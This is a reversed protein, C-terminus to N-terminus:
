ASDILVVTVDCVNTGTAGTVVHARAGTARDLEAFFAYANNDDLMTCADLDARTARAITEGDVIAGAAPSLGLPHSGDVGDTALTMITVRAGVGARDLEIAAALALEQNRGGFGSGRVRVHTEGGLVIARRKAFNQRRSPDALTPNAKAWSAAHRALEEGVKRAEGVVGLEVRDITYGAAECARRAAEVATANSGVLRTRVRALRADNPKPTEPIEGRAGRELHAMVRPCDFWVGLREIVEIAQAYTTPDPSCPGSGITEIVDGVVDSLALVHIPMDGACLALQGGKLADIHRRVCNLENISAGARMLTRVCAAYEDLTLEGAPLCMLSSAGGSLALVLGAPADPGRAEGMSLAWASIALGADLSARGPIPHDAEMACGSGIPGIDRYWDPAHAPRSANVANLMARAAKGVSLIAWPRPDRSLEHDILAARTLEFADCASIVRLVMAHLLDHTAGPEAM